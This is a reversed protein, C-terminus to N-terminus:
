SPSGTTSPNSITTVSPTSTKKKCVFPLDHNTLNGVRDNWKGESEVRM